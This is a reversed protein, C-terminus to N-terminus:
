AVGREARQRPLRVSPALPRRAVGDEMLVSWVFDDEVLERGYAQCDSSHQGPLLDPCDDGDCDWPRASM